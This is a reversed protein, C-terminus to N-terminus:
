RILIEIRRNEARGLTTANSAVPIKAGKGSTAIRGADIGSAILKDGLAKARAESRPQNREDTGIDDTHGIISIKSAPNDNMFQVLDAVDKAASDPIVNSAFAFNIHFTVSRPCGKSDVKYGKPTEPCEDQPDIVGDGDSDSAVVPPPPPPEVPAAKKESCANPHTPTFLVNEVAITREEVGNSYSLTEAGSATAMGAMLLNTMCKSIFKAM